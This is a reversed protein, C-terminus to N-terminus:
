VTKGLKNSKFVLNVLHTVRMRNHGQLVNGFPKHLKIEKFIFHSSGYGSRIEFCPDNLGEQFSGKNEFEKLCEQKDKAFYHGYANLCLILLIQDRILYGHCHRAM